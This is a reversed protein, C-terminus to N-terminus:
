SRSGKKLKRLLRKQRRRRGSLDRCKKCKHKCKVLGCGTPIVSKGKGKTKPKDGRSPHSPTKIDNPDVYLVETDFMAARKIQDESAQRELLFRQIVGGLQKSPRRGNPKSSDSPKNSSMIKYCTLNFLPYFNLKKKM